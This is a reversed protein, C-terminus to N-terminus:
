PRSLRRGATKSRRRSQNSRRRCVQPRPIWIHLCGRINKLRIRDRQSTRVSFRKFSKVWQLHTKIAFADRVMLVGDVVAVPEQPPRAADLHLSVDLLGPILVSGAGRPQIRLRWPPRSSRTTRSVLRSREEVEGEVASSSETKTAHHTSYYSAAFFLLLM